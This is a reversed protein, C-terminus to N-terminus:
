IDDTFSEEKEENRRRRTIMDALKGGIGTTVWVIVLAIAAPIAIIALLIGFSKHIAKESKQKM